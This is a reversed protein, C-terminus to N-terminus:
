SRSGNKQSLSKRVQMLPVTIWREQMSTGGIMSGFLAGVLGTVVGVVAGNLEPPTDEPPEVSAGVLYGLAAGSLFGILAGKGVGFAKRGTSVQFRTVSHFPILVPKVYNKTEVVLTDACFDTLTGM